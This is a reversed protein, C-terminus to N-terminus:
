SGADQASDTALPTPAEGLAARRAEERVYFWAEWDEERLSDLDDVLAGLAQMAKVRVRSEKDEVAIAVLMAYWNEQILEYEEQDLGEIFEPLGTVALASMIEGMVLADGDEMAAREATLLPMLRALGGQGAARVTAKVAAARVLSGTGKKERLARGLALQITHREFERVLSELEAYQPSDASAKGLLGGLVPLVRRAGDLDFLTNRLLDTQEVWAERTSTGDRWTRFARVTDALLKATEKAGARPADLPLVVFGTVGAREGIPGLALVARERTLLAPDQEILRACWAVQLAELRLNRSSDFSMLELLLELCSHSPDPLQRPPGSSKDSPQSGIRLGGVTQGRQNYAHQFDGVFSVTYHHRGSPTHLRELNEMRSEPYDVFDLNAMKGLFKCGSLGTLALTLVLLRRM